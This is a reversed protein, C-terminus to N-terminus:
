LLASKVHFIWPVQKNVPMWLSSFFLLKRFCHKHNSKAVHLKMKQKLTKNKQVAAAHLIKTGWRPISGTGGRGGAASARLRLWWVALSAGTDKRKIAPEHGVLNIEGPVLPDRSVTLM